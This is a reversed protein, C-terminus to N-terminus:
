DRAQGPHGDAGPASSGASRTSIPSCAVAMRDVAHRLPQGAAAERRARSTSPKPSPKRVEAVTQAPRLGDALGLLTRIFLQNDVNDPVRRARLQRRDRAGDVAIAKLNGPLAPAVRAGFDDLSCAAASTACRPRRVERDRRHGPDRGDRRDRGALRRPSTPARRSFARSRVCGREHIAPPSAPSTSRWGCTPGARWIRQAGNRARAPGLPGCRAADARRGPHVSGAPAITGDM